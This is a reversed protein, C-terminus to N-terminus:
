LARAMRRLTKTKAASKHVMMERTKSVRQEKEKLCHPTHLTRQPDFRGLRGKGNQQGYRRNRCAGTQAGATIDAM